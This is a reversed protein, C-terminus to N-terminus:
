GNGSGRWFNLAVWALAVASWFAAILLPHKFMCRTDRKGNLHALVFFAAAGTAALPLAFRGTFLAFTAIKCLTFALKEYAQGRTLVPTATPAASPAVSEPANPAPADRIEPPSTSVNM